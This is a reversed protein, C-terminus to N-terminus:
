TTTTRVIQGTQKGSFKIVNQKSVSPTIAYSLMALQFEFVKSSPSDDGFTLTFSRTVKNQVDSILQEQTANDLSYNATFTVEQGESLGAIFEKFGGSCFTTVEVQDNKEGFDGIETLECYTAFIEPSDGDGVALFAKGIFADSTEVIEMTM